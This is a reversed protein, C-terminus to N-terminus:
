DRAMRTVQRTHRKECPSVVKAFMRCRFTLVVADVTICECRRCLDLRVLLVKIRFMFALFLGDPIGAEAWLTVPGKDMDFVQVFVSSIVVFHIRIGCTKAEYAIERQRRCTRCVRGQVVMQDFVVAIRLLHQLIRTHRALLGKRRRVRKLLMALHM